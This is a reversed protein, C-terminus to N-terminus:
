SCAHSGEQMVAAKRGGQRGSLRVAQWERDAYRGVLTDKDVVPNRIGSGFVLVYHSPHFFNTTM